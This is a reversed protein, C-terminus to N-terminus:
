WHHGRPGLARPDAGTVVPLDLRRLRLGAPGPQHGAQTTQLRRPPAPLDPAPVARQAGRGCGPCRGSQVGRHGLAARCGPPRALSGQHGDHHHGGPGLVSDGEAPRRVTSRCLRRHVHHRRHEPLGRPRRLGLRCLCGGRHGRTLPRRPDGDQGRGAPGEPDGREPREHGRGNGVAARLRVAVGRLPQYHDTISPDALFGLYYDFAQQYTARGALVSQILSDDQLAGERRMEAWVQLHPVHTVLYPAVVDFDGAGGNTGPVLVLVHAASPSGFRRVTVQDYQAPSPTGAPIAPTAVVSPTAVTFVSEPVSGPAGLVPTSAQTVSVATDASATGGSVTWSAGVATMALVLPGVWRARM